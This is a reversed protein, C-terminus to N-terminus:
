CIPKGTLWVSTACVGTTAERRLVAARHGNSRRQFLFSSLLFLFYPNHLPTSARVVVFRNPDNTISYCCKGNFRIATAARRQGFQLRRGDSSTGDRHPPACSRRRRHLSALLIRSRHYATTSFVTRHHLRKILNGGDPSLRLGISTRLSMRIPSGFTGRGRSKTLIWYQSVSISRPPPFASPWKQGNKIFFPSSAHPTFFRETHLQKKEHRAFCLM